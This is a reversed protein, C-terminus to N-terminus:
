NRPNVPVQFYGVLLDANPQFPKYYVLVEYINETQFHNGELHNGNYRSGPNVWYQYDYLGQKLLIQKTYAGDRYQMRNEENQSWGNFGGIIYVDENVAPSRLSFIVNVYNTSIWPEQRYDLNEITFGGNRDPFQTYAMGARPADTAVYVDYPKHSKDVRETNLGPSNLSRFDVFRFENGASFTNNMDFFRYELQHIDERIFSAALDTRANDWRQNQRLTVHVTNAPNLVEMRGYMLKFNIAQNTSKLNGLGSINDDQGLIMLNQYVLIRKSLVIDSKNGDRYVVLLYNGPLKVSPISLRYHVYPIHTNISFSYDNIPFENYERLIDLDHLDSKKWDYNCHILRAYYNNKEEQLDDFELQLNQRELKTAPTLVGMGQTPSYCLVTKIQAEYTQDEMLLVKQGFGPTTAELMSFIVLFLTVRPGFYRNM